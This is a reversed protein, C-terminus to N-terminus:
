TLKLAVYLRLLSQSAVKIKDSMFMNEKVVLFVVRNIRKALLLSFEKFFPFTQWLCEFTKALIKEYNDSLKRSNFSVLSFKPLEKRGLTNRCLDHGKHRAMHPM